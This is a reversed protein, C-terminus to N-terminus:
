SRRFHSMGGLSSFAYRWRTSQKVHFFDRQIYMDVSVGDGCGGEFAPPQSLGQWARRESIRVRHCYHIDVECNLKKILLSYLHGEIGIM